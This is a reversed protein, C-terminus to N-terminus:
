KENKTIANGVTCVGGGRIKMIFVRYFRMVQKVSVLM